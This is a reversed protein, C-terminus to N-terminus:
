NSSRRFSRSRKAPKGRHEEMPSNRSRRGGGRETNRRKTTRRSDLSRNIWLLFFLISQSTTKLFNEAPELNDNRALQSYMGNADSELWASAQVSKLSIEFAVLAKFREILPSTTSPRSVPCREWLCIDIRSFFSFASTPETVLLYFLGSYDSTSHFITSMQKQLATNGTRHTQETSDRVTGRIM